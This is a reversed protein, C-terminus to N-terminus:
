HVDVGTNPQRNNTNCDKNIANVPSNHSVINSNPLPASSPTFKNSDIRNIDLRKVESELSQVIGTSNITNHHNNIATASSSQQHQGMLLNATYSNASSNTASTNNTNNLENQQQDQNANVTANHQSKKDKSKKLASLLVNKEKDKTKGEKEKDKHKNNKTFRPFICGNPLFGGLKEKKTPPPPATVAVTQAHLSPTPSTLAPTSSASNLTSVNCTGKAANTVSTNINPTSLADAKNANCPAANPKTTSTGNTHNQSLVKIDASTINNANLQNNLENKKQRGVGAVSGISDIFDKCENGNSLSINELTHNEHLWSERICKQQAEDDGNHITIKNDLEEALMSVSLLTADTKCEGISNTDMSVNENPQTDQMLSLRSRPPSGEVVGSVVSKSFMQQQQASLGVASFPSLPAAAAAKAAVNTRRTRQRETGKRLEM